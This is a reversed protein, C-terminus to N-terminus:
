ENVPEQEQNQQKLYNQHKETTEHRLKNQLTIECNCIKCFCRKANNQKNREKYKEPSNQRDLQKREKQYEITDNYYEKYTRGAVLKNVCDMKQQYFGERRELEKKVIVLIIKM